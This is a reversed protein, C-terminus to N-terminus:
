VASELMDRLLGLTKLIAERGKASQMWRPLRNEPEFGVGGWAVCERERLGASIFRELFDIHPGNFAWLTEGRCPAQLWTWASARSVRDWPVLRSRGMARSPWDRQGALTACVLRYGVARGADDPVKILHALPADRSMPRPYRGRVALSLDPRAEYTYWGRRRVGFSLPGARPPYAGINGPLAAALRTRQLALNPTTRRALM